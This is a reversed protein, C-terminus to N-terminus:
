REELLRGDAASYVRVALLSGPREEDYVTVRVRGPAGPDRSVLWAGPPVQKALTACAGARPQHGPPRGPYWIRCRGPPPLHGPPIGLTKATYAARRPAPESHTLILSTSSCGSLALAAAVLMASRMTM